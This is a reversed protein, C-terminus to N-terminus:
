GLSKSLEIGLKRLRKSNRKRQKGLKEIRRRKEDSMLGAKLNRIEDDLRKIEKGLSGIQADLGHPKEAVAPARDRGSPDTTPGVKYKHLKRRKKKSPKQKKPGRNARKLVRNVDRVPILWRNEVLEQTLEGRTLMDRMAHSSKGLMRAADGPSLHTGNVLEAVPEIVPEPEIAEPNVSVTPEPDNPYTDVPAEEVEEPKAEPLPPFEGLEGTEYDYLGVESEGPIEALHAIPIVDKVTEDVTSTYRGRYSLGAIRPHIFVQEVEFEANDRRINLGRSGPLIVREYRSDVPLMEVRTGFLPGPDERLRKTHTTIVM